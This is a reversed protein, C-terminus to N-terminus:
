TASKPNFYLLLDLNNYTKLFCIDPCNKRRKLNISQDRTRYLRILRQLVYQILSQISICLSDNFLTKFFCRKLHHSITLILDGWWNKAFKHCFDDHKHWIFYIYRNSLQLYYHTIKCYPWHCLLPPLKYKKSGSASVM